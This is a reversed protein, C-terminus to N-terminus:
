AAHARPKMFTASHTCKAPAHLYKNADIWAPYYKLILLLVCPRMKNTQQVASQLSFSEGKYISEKWNALNNLIFISRRGKQKKDAHADKLGEGSCDKVRMVNLQRWLIIWFGCLYRRRHECIQFINLLSDAWSNHMIMTSTSPHFIRLVLCPFSASM